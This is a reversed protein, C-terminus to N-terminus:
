TKRYDYFGRGSKRGMMGASVMQRLRPPAAYRPDKTEEYMADAIFLMTDLGVFDMLEFPGMPHNMGLKMATDFDEMSAVGQELGRIADLGYPVFLLNVIFGPNDKQAVVIRKDLREGFARLAQYTSDTTQLGRVIELRPM